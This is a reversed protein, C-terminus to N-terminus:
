PARVQQSAAAHIPGPQGGPLLGPMLGLGLIALAVAALAASALRPMARIPATSATPTPAPGLWVRHIARIYALLAIMSGLVMVALLAPGGLAMGAAYLRWQGLFGLTPPIGIMGLAGIMFVAAAIPARAALGQTALTLPKGLAHAGVAVAGFLALKALGHAILGYSAGTLGEGGAVVGLILYGLHDVSSFALMAKLDTQALALLAGGLISLAAVTVWVAQFDSFLWGAEQRLAILEAFVAVDVVGIMLALTLAPAAKAVGPLFFYLPVLGLKLMLGLVLLAVALRDFPAPPRVHGLDTLALAAVTAAVGLAVALLFRAGAARAPGGRSAVLAVIAFEAGALLAVAGWGHGALRSAAALGVVAGAFLWWLARGQPAALAILGVCLGAFALYVPLAGLGTPELMVAVSM